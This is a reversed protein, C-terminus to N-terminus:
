RTKLWDLILQVAKDALKKGAPSLQDGMGTDPAPIACCYFHIDKRYLELALAHLLSVSMHHSATQAPTGEPQYRFIAPETHQLSADAVIVSDYDLLAPILEPQLQQTTIVTLGPLQMERFRECCYWGAGDDTRLPNGTGLLCINREPTVAM